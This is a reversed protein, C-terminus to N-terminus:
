QQRQLQVREQERQANLPMGILNWLNFVRDGGRMVRYDRMSSSVKADREIMCKGMRWGRMAVAAHVAVGVQHVRV